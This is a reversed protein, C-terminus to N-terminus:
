DEQFDDARPAIPVAAAPIQPTRPRDLYDERRVVGTVIHVTVPQEDDFAKPMLYAAVKLYEHPREMRVIRITEIGHKEFDEAFAELFAMSLKNRAGTRRGSGSTKLQGTQFRYPKLHEAM